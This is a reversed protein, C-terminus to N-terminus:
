STVIDWVSINLYVNVMYQLAALVTCIDCYIYPIINRYHNACNTVDRHYIGTILIFVEDTPCMKCTVIVSAIIDM